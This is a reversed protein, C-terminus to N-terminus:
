QLLPAGPAGAPLRLVSPRMPTALFPFAANSLYLNFRDSGHRGFTVDTLDELGDAATALVHASGDRDIRVLQNNPGTAVYLRGFVDFTFDDGGLGAPLTAHVRPTGASGNPRIPIAVITGQGTNAVYVEGRFIQLGNAGGSPMGGVPPPPALLPHELWVQATGGGAPLRWIRGLFTDAVYVQGLRLALGNPLGALPLNALLRTAGNPRVEWVGRNAPDCAAVSVYLIDNLPNIDIGTVANFFAGCITVPPGIPLLALTSQTGDPAIKRIEGALALSVLLNGARDFVLSEPTEIGPNFLAVTSVAAAAPVPAAALVALVALISALALALPRPRPSVGKLM